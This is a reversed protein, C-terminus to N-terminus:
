RSTLSRRGRRILVLDRRAAAIALRHLGHGARIPAARKASEPLANGAWTQASHLANVYGGYIWRRLDHPMRGYRALRVDYFREGYLRLGHFHYAILPQGDITGGNGEHAIRYNMWNWPALGVGKHEIVGVSSFRRPFDDLYKQDAFRGPEVRDYCWELCRERWWNLCERAAVDNRMVLLGVNFVGYVELKRLRPPFRHRIIGISREGVEDLAPQLCSYFLYDADVYSLTEIGPEAKLLYLPWSPTCTFYYEVSSRGRKAHM